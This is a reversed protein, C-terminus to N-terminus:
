QSSVEPLHHLISFKKKGSRKKGGAKLKEVQGDTNSESIASEKIVRKVFENLKKGSARFNVSVSLIASSCVLSDKPQDNHWFYVQM